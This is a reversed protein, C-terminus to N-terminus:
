KWEFINIYIGTYICLMNMKYSFEVLLFIWWWNYVGVQCKFPIMQCQDTNENEHEKGHSGSHTCYLKTIDNRLDEIPELLQKLIKRNILKHQKQWIRIIGDAHHLLFRSNDSRISNKENSLSRSKTNKQGSSDQRINRESLLPVPPRSNYGM